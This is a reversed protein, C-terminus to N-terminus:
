SVPPLKDAWPRAKEFAASAQLVSIEDELRGVIQLGVPLGDSTFGCPCTSAPNGMLNFILTFPCFEWDIIGLGLKTSKQGIPFAPVACTPTLLLDYKDFFDLMAGRWKEIEFWGRAVEVGTLKRGLEVVDRVYFMLEDAHEDYIPGVLIAVEAAFVTDFAKLPSGAAPTAEEVVHGLEEFAQAAKETLSKVEPDVDVEAYGLDPSWAIRLKKLSGNLAKLFDPPATRICNYVRPDPGSIVNMMLAADRVNRTLPGITAVNMVAGSVPDPEYPVRNIITTPKIGYLGCFSAPIRISGGGDSGQAMPAIGAATVAGAGGSSGGPNRDTNWPNRCYDGLKTEIPISLAFESTNSKGVIIAGAAKLRKVFIDDEGPVFDKFVLSASTTRIGKTMCIDKIAIPLGHLLGLDKGKNIAAEAQHAQEIAQEEAVTIYANLKPNLEEIRRLIAGMLEVPSLKKSKMMQILEYAPTFCLERDENTLAM